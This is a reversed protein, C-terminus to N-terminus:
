LRELELIYHDALWPLPPITEVRRECRNLLKAWAGTYLPPPFAGLAAVRLQRFMPSFANRLTGISPYRITLGRWECGGRLMRRFAKRPQGHSLFWAWEWPAVPGMVCLIATAGPRLRAALARAVFSLDSVCNLGGFNSFAGDCPVTELAGIEELAIRRVQVLGSLGELKVKAAAIEVMGDSIDTALVEIGRRGLHVADEGTGCNLELVRQGPQFRADLRDWVAQRMLQGIVTNTFERDYDRALLGFANGPSAVNM